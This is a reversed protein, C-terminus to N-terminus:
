LSVNPRADIWFIKDALVAFMVVEKAQIYESWNIGNVIDDLEFAKELIKGAKQFFGLVAGTSIGLEGQSEENAEAIVEEPSIMHTALDWEERKSEPIHDGLLLDLQYSGLKISDGSKLLSSKIKQGNVHTGNASDLDEIYLKKKQLTIKAHHRSVSGDTLPIDNDRDRGLTVPLNQINYTVSNGEINQHVLQLKM